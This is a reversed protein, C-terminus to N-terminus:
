NCLENLVGLNFEPENGQLPIKIVGIDAIQDSEPDIKQVFGLQIKNILSFFGLCNKSGVGLSGTHVVRTVGDKGNKGPDGKEGKPGRDGKDGKDGKPGVISEGPDGQPGIRNRPGAFAM